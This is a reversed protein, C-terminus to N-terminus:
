TGGLRPPKKAASAKLMAKIARARMELELIEMQNQSLEGGAQAASPTKIAATAPPASPTTLAGRTSGLSKSGLGVVGRSVSGVATATSRPASKSGLPQKLVVTKVQFDRTSGMSSRKVPVNSTSGKFVPVDTSFGAQVNLGRDVVVRSDAGGTRILKKGLMHPMEVSGPLSPAAVELVAAQAGPKRVLKVPKGLPKVECSSPMEKAAHAKPQVGADPKQLVRCEHSMKDRTGAKTVEEANEQKITWQRSSSILLESVKKPPPIVSDQAVVDIQNDRLPQQKEEAKGSNVKVGAKKTNELGATTNKASRDVAVQVPQEVTQQQLTTRDLQTDAGQPEDIVEGEEISGASQPSGCM